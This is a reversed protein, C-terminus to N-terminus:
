SGTALIHGYLMPLCHGPRVAHTSQALVVFAVHLFLLYPVLQL